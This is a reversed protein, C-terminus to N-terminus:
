SHEVVLCPDPDLRAAAAVAAQGEPALRVHRAATGVAAVTPAAAVDHQDAVVRQAVQLGELAAGVVLGVAAAVPFPGLAVAGVAAVEHDLHRGPRDDDVLVVAGAVVEDDGALLRADGAAAAAPAAVRVEAARGPLRRAEGLLAEGALLAPELQLELQQGVDAEDAQGVGALRRQQRAHRARRRLDAGVRERRELRDEAREVPLVALEDDGVDGPQDLARRGARAEAVVEERVDLARPQEDM